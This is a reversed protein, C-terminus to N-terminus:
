CLLHSFYRLIAKSSTAGSPSHFNNSLMTEMNPQGQQSEFLPFLRSSTARTYENRALYLVTNVAAVVGAEGRWLYYIRLLEM